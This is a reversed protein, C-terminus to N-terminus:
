SSTMGAKGEDLMPSKDQAAEVDVEEKNNLASKRAAQRRRYCRCLFFGVIFSVFVLAAVLAVAVYVVLDSGAVVLAM